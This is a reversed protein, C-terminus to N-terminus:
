EVLKVPVPTRGTNQDWCIQLQGNGALTAMRCIVQSGVRASGNVTIAVISQPAYVTGGISFTGGLLSNAGLVMTPNLGLPLSVLEPPQMISIGQYLGSTPPTIKLNGTAAISIADTPLIPANVITVGDGSVNAAAAVTFGGGAMYYLGPSLVVNASGAIRIGGTYRGPQLTTSQSGTITLLTSQRNILSSPDPPSLYALPDPTPVCGTQVNAIIPGNLLPLYGGTMNFNTTTLSGNLAVATSLLSSSDVIVSANTVLVSSNAAVALSAPLTPELALLGYAVPQWQGRAVSRSTVATPASGFILGFARNQSRTAIVEVYGAIGSYDGSTPPINVVVTSNIGDNAYGLSAATALASSRATGQPDLGSTFGYNYTLECAAAMSSADAVAQSRRNEAMLNGCDIVIALIGFLVVLILAFIVIIGGRRTTGSRLGNVFVM